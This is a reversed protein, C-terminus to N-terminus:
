YIGIIYIPKTYKLSLKIGLTEISPKSVCLDDVICAELGKKVYMVLGGGRQKGTTRCRDLRMLCYGPIEILSNPVADTLWTESLIFIEAQSQAQIVSIEVMKPFLSRCNWHLTTIGKLYKVDEVNIVLSDDMTMTFLYATVM